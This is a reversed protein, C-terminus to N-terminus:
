EPFNIMKGAVQIKANNESKSINIAELMAMEEVMVRESVPSEGSKFFDIMAAVLKEFGGKNEATSVVLGNETWLRVGWEHFNDYRYGFCIVKRDNRWTSVVIDLKDTTEIVQVDQIGSGLMEFVIEVVHVGYWFWGPFDDLIQVPGHVCMSHVKKGASLEHIGRYYRLASASFVPASYKKSLSMIKFADDVSCTFPKDIFVPKGFPAVVEFQELHQRGDCSTIILADSKEGIDELDEVIEVGQRAVSLTFKGVRNYSMSFEDSGGPYGYMIRAPSKKRKNFIRCFTNVHSTDLGIMGIKIHDM